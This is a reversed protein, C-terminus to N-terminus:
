VQRHLYVFDVLRIFGYGVVLGLVSDQWSCFNQIDVSNFVLGIVMLSLTIWNPLIFSKFDIWSALCFLIIFSILFFNM